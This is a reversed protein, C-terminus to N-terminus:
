HIPECGNGQLLGVLQDLEESRRSRIVHWRSHVNREAAPDFKLGWLAEIRNPLSAYRVDVVYNPDGPDLALWGDSYWSFRDLDKAQQSGADLWPLDRARNLLGISEGPCLEATGAVRIGDVHIRDENQYIAKWVFLNAFGPKLTLRVPTHGRNAAVATAAETARQHQVAAFSLYALM